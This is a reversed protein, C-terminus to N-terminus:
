SDQNYPQHSQRKRNRYWIFAGLLVVGMTGEVEFPVPTGSLSSPVDTFRNPDESSLFAGNLDAGGGGISTIQAGYIIEGSKLGFDNLDIGAVAIEQDNSIEITNVSVGTGVFDNNSGSGLIELSSSLTPNEFTGGTILEVRIDSNVGREFFIIEPSNDTVNSNDTIGQDFIFQITYDVGNTDEGDAMESLSRSNFANLLTADQITPDTTEQNASGFGAKEFPNDNGDSNDDNDGWEANINGRGSLVELRQVARFSNGNTGNAEFTANGGGFSLTDVFVDDTYPNSSDNTGSPTSITMSDFTVIADVPIASGLVVSFVSFATLCNSLKMSMDEIDSSFLIQNCFLL